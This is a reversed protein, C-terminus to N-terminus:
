LRANIISKYSFITNMDSGFKDDLEFEQIIFEDTEWDGDSCLYEIWDKAKQLSSYVGAVAFMDDTGDNMEILVYVKM